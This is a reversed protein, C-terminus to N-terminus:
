RADARTLPEIEQIVENLDSLDRPTTRNRVLNRLRRIIEGARLAQTAIQELAERVEAIDPQPAALLRAGAQAFTAIAALPQNIEHSIGSAMEGMTALRSVHMMRERSERLEQEARRSDTVDDGSCLLGSPIGPRQEIVVCRWVIDRTAGQRTTVPCEFHYPVHTQSQMLASLQAAVGARQEPPIAAQVWSSALLASEEQGLVECGKRNIMTIRLEPDLAVLMTQAAELYRSAREREREVATLAQQRLTLDHLFGVFRAPQEDGIRGVSLFAPFVSGDKRRAQVERGIGIIHAVGTRAYRALYADHQDHDRETMLLNINRGIAESAGYGFLREAAHNFVQMIGRADIVIVADATADLLAQAELPAITSLSM